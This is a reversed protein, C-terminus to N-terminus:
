HMQSKRIFYQRILSEMTEQTDVLEWYHGRRLNRSITSQDRKLKAATAGQKKTSLQINITDWQRSSISQILTDQLLYLTNAIQDFLKEYSEFRTFRRYRTGKDKKLQDAAIRAREFAEGGSFINVPFRRPATAHGIGVAVWLQTPQFFRRLDFIIRPIHLPSTLIVQFEDWTTVAYNSLILKQRRHWKSIPKLKKDRWQRFSPIQRSGVVDATIVAYIQKAM